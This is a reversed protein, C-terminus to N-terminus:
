DTTEVAPMSIVGQSTSAKYGADEQAPKTDPQNGVVLPVIFSRAQKQGAHTIVSNITLNYRGNELASVQLTVNAQRTDSFEFHSASDLQVGSQKVVEISLLEAQQYMHFRLPITVTEGVQLPSPASYQMDIDAHPKVYDARHKHGAPPEAAATNSVEPSRSMGTLLLLVAPITILLTFKKM